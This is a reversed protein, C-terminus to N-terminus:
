LTLLVHILEDLLHALFDFGQALVHVPQVDFLGQTDFEILLIQQAPTATPATATDRRQGLHQGEVLDLRM